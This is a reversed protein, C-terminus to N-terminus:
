TVSINLRECVADYKASRVLVARRKNEPSYVKGQVLWRIWEAAIQDSLKASGAVYKGIGREYEHGM